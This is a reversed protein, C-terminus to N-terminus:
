KLKSSAESIFYYSYIGFIWQAKFADVPVGAFNVFPAGLHTAEYFDRWGKLFKDFKIKNKKDNYSDSLTELKKFFHFMFNPSNRNRAILENLDEKQYKELQQLLYEKILPNTAGYTALQFAYSQVQSKNHKRFQNNIESTFETINHFTFTYKKFREEIQDVLIGDYVVHRDAGSAIHGVCSTLKTKNFETLLKDLRDKMQTPWNTMYGKITKLEPDSISPYGKPEVFTGSHCTDSVVVIRVLPKFAKLLVYFVKENFIKCDSSFISTINKKDLSVAGHTSFTITVIDGSIALDALLFISSIIRELTADKSKLVISTKYGMKKLGKSWYDADRECKFLSDLSKFDNIGIFLGFGKPSNLGNRKVVAM